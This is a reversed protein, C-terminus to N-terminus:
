RGGEIRPSESIPFGFWCEAGFAKHAQYIDGSVAYQGWVSRFVVGLSSYGYWMGKVPYEWGCKTPTFYGEGAAAPSVSPFLLAAALFASAILKKM